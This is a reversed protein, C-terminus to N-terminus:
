ATAMRLTKYRYKEMRYLSSLINEPLGKIAASFSDWVKVIICPAVAGALKVLNLVLIIGAIWSESTERLRARIRNLGYGRKAQGFKGEIPNREGPSVHNSVATASPRGLPKAKLVIGSGKGKLMMRNVRTCYLKDALVEKPYCGFRERYKEVYSEMHSGENFADWSLEDLFSVGDIVSLHIKSGFEVPASVKGRVIPRVHPQHISVIRDEITHTQTHHMTFQQDYLTQIVYFCRLDRHTLPLIQYFDLLHHVSRLNRGVYGLQKRVASRIQKKTKKKKQATHLYDKRAIQRYTRPKEGHLDKDYLIDILRETIERAESLLDLDTPYAIDQPCVTADFLIRGKHEEEEVSASDETTSEQLYVDPSEKPLKGSGPPKDEFGTKLKVIKENMANIVDIGLRKRIDVFLSADFPKENVFSPYGLFYQMYINESIMDVTERDDLNCIYKIILAGLIIRPNLPDRGTGSRGGVQQHYISCLEDWPIQRSLVVWRNSHDLEREFPHEFGPLTGQSPSEYRPNFARSKREKTMKGQM